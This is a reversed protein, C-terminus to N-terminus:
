APLLGLKKLTAIEEESLEGSAAQQELKTVKAAKEKTVKSGGTSPGRSGYLYSDGVAQCRIRVAERRDDESFEGFNVEDGEAGVGEMDIDLKVKEGALIAATTKDEAADRIKRQVIIDRQGQALKLMHEPKGDEVLTLFEDVNEAEKTTIELGKRVVPRNGDKDEPGYITALGRESAIAGALVYIATKM